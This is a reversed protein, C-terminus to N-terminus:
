LRFLGVTTQDCLLVLVLPRIHKDEKYKAILFYHVKYVNIGQLADMMADDDKNNKKAM